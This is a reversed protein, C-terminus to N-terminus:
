QRGGRGGGGGGSGRGGSGGGSSRGGGSMGGSSRGSGVIGGGGGFGGSSRPSSMSPGSSGGGYSRSEMSRASPAPRPESMGGRYSEGRSTWGSRPESRPQSSGRDSGYSRSAAGTSWVGGSEPSRPSGGTASGYSRGSAEVGAGGGTSWREGGGSSVFGRGTSAPAGMRGGAMDDSNGGRGGTRPGESRAPAESRAPESRPSSEMRPSESRPSEARAPADSTRESGGRTSWVEGRGSSGRDADGRGSESRSSGRDERGAESGRTTWIGRGSDGAEGSRPSESGRSAAEGRGGRSPDGFGRWGSRPESAAAEAGRGGDATRGTRPSVSEVGTRGNSPDGFGRWGGRTTAGDEGTGPTGTRGEVRGAEGTRERGTSGEGASRWGGRSEDATRTGRGAESAASRGAQGDSGGRGNGARGGAVAGGPEVPLRRDGGTFAERQREFPVRDVNRAATRAIFRENGGTANAGVPMVRAERDAFRVSERGPTVPLAGRMVSARGLDGANGRYAQGRMGRGSDGDHISISNRVRANRYVNTINVNNVVIVNNRINGNRFGRYHDRGWWRHFPDYPALPVWGMRGWGGMGMGVGGGWGFWAVLGPSWHHRMGFGGGPYWCWRGGHHFWRGYHYPAWGWPDYSVWTWGYWDVWSWRGHRYPAWGIAVTPQWVHGYPAVDVWNGHGYLDEAGYIDRSVYRYTDLGRRLERDRAENFRDWEDRGIAAVTQFVPEGNEGNRVLMTRGARLRQTGGPTYVEVEGSRVTIEATGDPGVTVRYSGYAVPRVAAAPTSIEVQADGGKLAAFTATGRALQLLYRGKEIDALRVETEEALRIRHYYDFQVEARSRPGAFIRDETMLPANIAGAVWDGSDGRRVSVEGNMLSLRAVGRNEGEADANVVQAKMPPVAGALMTAILAPVLVAPRTLTRRKMATWRREEIVIWAIPTGDKM